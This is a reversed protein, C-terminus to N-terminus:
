AAASPRASVEAYWRKLNALDEPLAIRAARMFDVAVLLTIDAVTFRDGAVFARRGLEGDLWALQELARGRNVEAWDAVQPVEFGAMGPHGHRFVFSVQSFVGLEVFRNWMEVKAREVPDAGFLDPEPHIEEIYRCIAMTEAIATGDDLVLVPVQRQPNIERFREGRHEKGALDVMESPVVVGKEALFIRVRRPNPAKVADLLKMDTRGGSREQGRWEVM